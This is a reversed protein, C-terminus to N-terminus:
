SLGASAVYFVTFNTSFMKLLLVALRCVTSEMREQRDPGFIIKRFESLKKPHHDNPFLQAKNPELTMPKRLCPDIAVATTSESDNEFKAHELELEPSKAPLALHGPIRRGLEM